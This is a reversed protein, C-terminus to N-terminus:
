ASPALSPSHGAFAFILGATIGAAPLTLVWGGFIGILLRWNLSKIGGGSLLGIATTAGTICHTSSVPLSLKSCTLITISTGLEASFGRTPSLYTIKNGLTRMVHYGYTLLGLDIAIGGYILIWVPVPAKSVEVNANEWVYFITALPGIANSVDNSGHAFSTFCATIVQLSSYLRETDNDFKIANAHVSEVHANKGSNIDYRVGKLLQDKVATLGKVVFNRNDEKDIKVLDPNAEADAADADGALKSDKTEAQGGAEALMEPTKERKGVFPTIPLHYWRLDENDQIRRRLFPRLFFFCWLAVGAGAGFAIGVPVGVQSKIDSNNVGKYIIYFINITIALGFYVPIANLGRQFSNSHNLIIVKTLMFIISCVIGSAVPSIIWSLAIKGIEKWLIADAGFAAIGAGSVAGVIAHTTSVPWGRSSAFLVWTSSGVLSCAMTLMLLEPQAKYLSTSIIKGLLFAGGFECVCAIMLAQLLTISGSGVSTAFANAVDNAGIGYADLFAFVMGMVFLFTYDHVQMM